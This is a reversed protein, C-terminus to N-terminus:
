ILLTRDAVVHRPQSVVHGDVLLRLVGPHSTATGLTVLGSAVLKDHLDVLVNRM